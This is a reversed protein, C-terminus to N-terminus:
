QRVPDHVHAVSADGRLTPIRSPVKAPEAAILNAQINWSLKLAHSGGAHRGEFDGSKEVTINNRLDDRQRQGLSKLLQLLARLLWCSSCLKFPGAFLDFRFFGGQYGDRCNPGTLHQLPNLEDIGFSKWTQDLSGASLFCQPLNRLDDTTILKDAMKLRIIHFLQRIM